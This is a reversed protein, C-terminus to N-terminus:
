QRLWKCGRSHLTYSGYNRGINLGELSAKVREIDIRMVSGNATFVGRGRNNFNDIFRIHIPGTRNYTGDANIELTQSNDPMVNWAELVYHSGRVTLRAKMVFDGLPFTGRGTDGELHETLCYDTMHAAAAGSAAPLLALTTAIRMRKM